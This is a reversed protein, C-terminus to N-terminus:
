RDEYNRHIFTEVEGYRNEDALHVIKALAGEGLQGSVRRRLEQSDGQFYARKLAQEGVLAELMDVIRVERPYVRPQDAFHPDGTADRALWETVGEELGRGLASTAQPDSLQHLREHALIQRTVPYNPTVYVEDSQPDYHGLVRHAEDRPIGSQKRLLTEYQERPLATPASERVSRLREPPIWDGHRKEISKLVDSDIRALVERQLSEASKAEGERQRIESRRQALHQREGERRTERQNVLREMPTM